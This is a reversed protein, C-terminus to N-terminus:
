DNPSIFHGYWQMTIAWEESESRVRFKDPHNRILNFHDELFRILHRANKETITITLEDNGTKPEFVFQNKM